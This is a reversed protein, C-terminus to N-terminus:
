HSIIKITIQLNIELICSLMPGTPAIIHAYLAEQLVNRAMAGNKAMPLESEQGVLVFFHGMFWMGLNRVYCLPQVVLVASCM